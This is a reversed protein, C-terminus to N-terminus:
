PETLSGILQENEARNGVTIRLCGPLQWGFNRILVGGQEAQRQVRATDSASVLLFNADSPALEFVFHVVFM